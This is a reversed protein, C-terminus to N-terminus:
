DLASNNENGMAGLGDFVTALRLSEPCVQPWLNFKNRLNIGIYLRMSGLVKIVNKRRGSKSAQKDSDTKEDNDARAAVLEGADGLLIRGSSIGAAAIGM